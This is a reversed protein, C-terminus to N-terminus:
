RGKWREYHDGSIEGVTGRTAVGRMRVHEGTDREWEIRYFCLGLVSVSRVEFTKQSLVNTDTMKHGESEFWSSVFMIAVLNATSREVRSTQTTM